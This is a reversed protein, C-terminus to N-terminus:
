ASKSREMSLEKPPIEAVPLTFSVVTGTPESGAIQMEGGHAAVVARCITLGLGTGGDKHRAAQGRFFKEFVSSRESPPIGPGHDIVDVKVWGDKACARFALPSDPPTYRAINELLNTLVHDVLVADVLVLPLDEPLELTVQRQALRSSFRELAAQVLEELSEPANDLSIKGSELRTVDLLNVIMRNMRESEEVITELLSASAPETTRRGLLVSGAAMISALPTKM